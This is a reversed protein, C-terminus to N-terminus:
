YIPLYTVTETHTFRRTLIVEVGPTASYVKQTFACVHNKPTSQPWSSMCNARIEVM